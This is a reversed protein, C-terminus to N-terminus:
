GITLRPFFGFPADILYRTFAGCTIASVIPPSVIM